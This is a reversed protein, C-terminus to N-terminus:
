HDKKRNRPGGEPDQPATELTPPRGRHRSPVTNSVAQTRPRGRPRSPATNSIAQRRPRGRPRPPVTVPMPPSERSSIMRRRQPPPPPSFSPDQSKISPMDIAIAISTARGIRRSDTAKRRATSISSEREGFANDRTPTKNEINWMSLRYEKM